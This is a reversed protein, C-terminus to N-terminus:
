LCGLRIGMSDYVAVVAKGGHQIVRYEWRRSPTDRLADRNLRDALKTAERIARASPDGDGRTLQEEHM